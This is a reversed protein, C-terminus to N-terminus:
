IAAAGLLDSLEGRGQFLRASRRALVAGRREKAFGSIQAKGQTKGSGLDNWSM